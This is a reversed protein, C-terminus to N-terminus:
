PCASCKIFICALFHPVIRVWEVTGHTSFVHQLAYNPMPRTLTTFLTFEDPVVLPEPTPAPESEAVQEM